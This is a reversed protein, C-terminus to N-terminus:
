RSASPYNTAPRAEYLAQVGFLTPWRGLVGLWKEPLRLVPPQGLSSSRWSVRWGSELLLSEASAFTFFRLHTEDLLGSKQYRWRGLLLEKRTSWHAINPVSVCARGSPKVLPVLRRLVDAPAVLHELVDLLLIADYEGAREVLLRNLAEEITTEAVDRYLEAALAAMARNPEVGDVTADRQEILYRGAFGSWCGIDLITAGAPIRDLLGRRTGEPVQDPDYPASSAKM